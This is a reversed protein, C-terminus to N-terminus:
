PAPPYEPDGSSRANRPPEEWGEVSRLNKFGLDDFHVNAGSSIRRGEDSDRWPQCIRRVRQKLGRLAGSTREAGRFAVRRRQGPLDSGESRLRPVLTGGLDITAGLVPWPADTLVPPLPLPFAVSFFGQADVLWGPKAGDDIFWENWAGDAWYMRTRGLITYSRDNVMLGTGIQLPSIDDPLSAMTGIAEVSVDSRVVM